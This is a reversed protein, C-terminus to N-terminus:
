KCSQAAPRSRWPPSVGRTCCWSDSATCSRAVASGFAAGGFAAGFSGGTAGRVFFSLQFSCCSHSPMSAAMWAASSASTARCASTSDAAVAPWATLGFHAHVVDFRQGRYRRRLERAARPYSRLGPPFCFLEIEVDGRRRLAEVQDRVFPGSAPREPTPYMNTVVLARV